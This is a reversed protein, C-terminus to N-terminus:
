CLFHLCEESFISILLLDLGSSEKPPMERPLTEECAPPRSRQRGWLMPQDAGKRFRGRAVRMIADRLAVLSHRAPAGVHDWRAGWLGGMIPATHHPHDRLVHFTKNESLWEKVAEAERELLLADSDRVFFASLKADGLPLARWIMNHISTVDGLSPLNTVDCIYLFPYDRLLPCLVNERGRPNTYVWAAWGPFMTKMSDLNKRFAKWYQADNGYLSFSIVRQGEGAAWARLGCAGGADEWSLRPAEKPHCLVADECGCDGGDWWPLAKEEPLLAKTAQLAAHPSASYPIKPLKGIRLFHVLVAATVMLLFGGLFRSQALMM